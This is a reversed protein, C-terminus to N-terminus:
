RIAGENIEIKAERQLKQTLAEISAQQKEMQLEQKILSELESFSKQEGGRKAELKIIAYGDATKFINSLSGVALTTSFAVAEFDAPKDGRKIFGTDGGNKSSAVRSREKALTAFDAGDLLQKYIDKAEQETAVVLERVQREEPSKLMAKNEDYFKKTEDFSVKIKDVEEKGLALILLNMKTRELAQAIEPKRDLGRDLAEQYFLARRVLEEKLYRIKQERTTIKQNAPLNRAEVEENYAEIEQNLEELTIPITNVKAIQTGYVKISPTSSKGPTKKGGLLSEIQSCGTLAVLMGGVIILRVVTKGM